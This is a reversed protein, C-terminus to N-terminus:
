TPGAGSDPGAPSLPGWLPELYGDAVDRLHYRTQHLPGTTAPHVVTKCTLCEVRYRRRGTDFGAHETATIRFLHGGITRLLLDGVRMGPIADEYPDHGSLTRLTESTRNSM